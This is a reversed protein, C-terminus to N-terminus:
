TNLNRRHRLRIAPLVSGERPTVHVHRAFPVFSCMPQPVEMAQAAHPPADGVVAHGVLSLDCNTPSPRTAGRLALGYHITVPLMNPFDPNRQPM